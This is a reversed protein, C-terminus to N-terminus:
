KKFYFDGVFYSDAFPKVKELQSKDQITWVFVPGRKRFSQVAKSSLIRYNVSIFHPKLISLILNTNMLKSYLTIWNRGFPHSILLGTPIDTHKLFWHVIKIDFSQIVFDYPYTELVDVIKQCYKRYNLIKTRKIEIVLFVKGKVLDLVDSFLPIHSNTHPFTLKKLESYTYSNIERNIGFLRKLNSDHYVVLNGDKLLHIDFEIPVKKQLALIFAPITNEM